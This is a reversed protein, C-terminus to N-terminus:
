KVLGRQKLGAYLTCVAFAETDYLKPGNTVWFFRQYNEGVALIFEGQGKVCDQAGTVGTMVVSQGDSVVLFDAGVVDIGKNNKQQNFTLPDIMVRMNSDASDTLHVWDASATVSTTLLLLALIKKM